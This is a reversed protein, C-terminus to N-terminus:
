HLKFCNWRFFFFKVRQIWIINWMIIKGLQPNGFLSSAYFKMNGLEPDLDYETLRLYRVGDTTEFVGVIKIVVDIDAAFIFLYYHM